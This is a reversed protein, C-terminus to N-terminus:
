SRFKLIRLLFANKAANKIVDCCVAGYSWVRLFPSFVRMYWVVIRLFVILKRYLEPWRTRQHKFTTGTTYVLTKVVTWTHLTLSIKLLEYFLTIRMHTTNCPTIFTFMVSTANWSAAASKPEFEKHCIDYKFSLLQIHMYCRYWLTLPSLDHM